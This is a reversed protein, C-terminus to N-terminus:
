TALVDRVEPPNVAKSEDRRFLKLGQYAVVEALWGVILAGQVVVAPVAILALTPVSIALMKVFPMPGRRFWTGVGDHKAAAWRVATWMVWRRLFPVRLERLARNFIGDADYFDFKGNRAENWLHDHLIAAQTWRGYRPLLWVFVRPVSAFDTETGADVKITDTRGKYTFGEVLVWKRGEPLVPRVVVEGKFGM